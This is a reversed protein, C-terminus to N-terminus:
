SRSPGAQQTSSSDARQRKEDREGTEESARARRSPEPKNEQAEGENPKEADIKIIPPLIIRPTKAGSSSAFSNPNNDRPLRGSWSCCGYKDIRYYGLWPM